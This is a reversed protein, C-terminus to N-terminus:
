GSGAPPLTTGVQEVFSAGVQEVFSPVFSSYLLAKGFVKEATLRIRCATTYNMAQLATSQTVFIGSPKMVKALM